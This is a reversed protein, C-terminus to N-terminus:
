AGCGAEQADNRLRVEAQWRRELAPATASRVELEVQLHRLVLRSTCAPASAAADAAPAVGGPAAPCTGPCPLPVAEERPTLRLATVRLVNADTLAQWNGQGLQMELVGARLRLGRREDPTLLDDEARQPHAWATTLTPAAATGGLSWGAYPNATPSSATGANAAHWWFGSRRLDRVLLATAARLEQELVLERQLRRQEVLHGGAVTLGSSVVLLGLASGVLLEVLSM